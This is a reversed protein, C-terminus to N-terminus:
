FLGQLPGLLGLLWLAAVVVTAVVVVKWAIRLVVRGVLIAVAVIILTGLLGPLAPIRGLQLPLLPDM